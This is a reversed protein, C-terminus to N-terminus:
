SRSWVGYKKETAALRLLHLYFARRHVAYLRREFWMGRDGFAATFLAAAGHWLMQAVAYGRAAVPHRHFSEPVKFGPRYPRLAIDAFTRAMMVARDLQRKREVLEPQVRHAAKAETCIVTKSGNEAFDFFLGPEPVWLNSFQQGPRICKSRFWFHNGCPWRDNRVPWDAPKVEKEGYASYAWVRINQRCEAAWRPTSTGPWIVYVYGGFVDADPRRECAAKVQRIWDPHPSMDDDLGAVIKGLGGAALVRNMTNGKGSKAEHVYRCPVTAATEEAVIKAEGPHGNDAIVIEMSWGARDCALVCRITERLSELRHRTCVMVTLDFAPVAEPPM